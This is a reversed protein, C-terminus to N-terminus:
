VESHVAGYVNGSSDIYASNQYLSKVDDASLATAYIRADSLYGKYNQTSTDRWSGLFYNGSVLTKYTGTLKLEGNLYFLANTGNSVMTLMNWKDLEFEFMGGGWSYAKIKNDHVNNASCTEIEFGSPGGLITEWAKSSPESALRKFWINFTFISDPILTLLNPLQITQNVGNVHTSVTYKATDSSYTPLNNKVGNNCYGSTDYEITSNLGMTTALADSSNPCWPTAISGEEIKLNKIYCDTNQSCQMFYYITADSTLNLYSFFLRVWKNPTTYAAANSGAWSYNGGNLEGRFPVAQSSTSYYDCSIVYSKGSTASLMGYQRNNGGNSHLHLCKTAGGINSVIEQAGGNMQNSFLTVAGDPYSSFSTDYGTILNEQGWGQRNLPYHLVLGKALEKVEMPSLCHDYIRVDQIEGNIKGSEGLWFAGNLHGGTPTPTSVVIGDCYQKITGNTYDVVLAIHYWTNKNAGIMAGFGTGISDNANNHSSIGRSEYGSAYCTEWRLQGTNGSNRNVDTFGIVDVWNTSQTTDSNVKAWFAISFNELNALASCNFNVRTNLDLCKAGLKGGSNKFVPTGSSTVSALGQNRLDKTLPLWVRLSM